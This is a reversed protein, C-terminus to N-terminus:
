ILYNPDILQLLLTGISSLYGSSTLSTINIYIFHADALKNNLEDILTPLRDNFLQVENNIMESYTTGNTGFNAVQEPINGPEALGFVAM